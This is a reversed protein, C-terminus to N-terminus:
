VCVRFYIACEGGGNGTMTALATLGPEKFIKRLGTILSDRKFKGFRDPYDSMLRDASEAFKKLDTMEGEKVLSRVFEAEDSKVHFSATMTYPQNRAILDPTVITILSLSHLNKMGKVFFVSIMENRQGDSAQIESAQIEGTFNGILNEKVNIHCKSMEFVDRQHSRTSVLARSCGRDSCMFQVHTKLSFPKSCHRLVIIILYIIVDSHIKTEITDVVNLNM